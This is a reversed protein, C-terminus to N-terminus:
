EDLQELYHRAADTFNGQSDFEIVKEFHERAELSRGLLLLAKGYLLHARADDPEIRLSENLQEMANGYEQLTLYAEGLDNRARLDDPNYTLYRDLENISSVLDGVAMYAEGLALSTFDPDFELALPLYKVTDAYKGQLNLAEGWLGFLSSFTGCSYLTPVYMDKVFALNIEEYIESAESYRNEGFLVSAELARPLLIAERADTDKFEGSRGGRLRTPGEPPPSPDSDPPFIRVLDGVPFQKWKFLVLDPTTTYMPFHGYNGEVLHEYRTDAPGPQYGPPTRALLDKGKFGPVGAATISTIRVDPRVGEVVQLYMCPFIINDNDVVVVADREATQLINGALDEAYHYDSKDAKDYHILASCLPCALVLLAAVTVTAYEVLRDRSGILRKLARVLSMAGVGVWLSFVLYSPYYFHARLVPELQSYTMVPLLTLLLMFLLFLPYKKSRKGFSCLLGLGGLWAFYPFETTLTGFYRWFRSPLFRAPYGLLGGRLYYASVHRYWGTVTAPDGYNYAPGRFAATPEYLYPLLGLALFLVARTLNRPALAERWDTDVAFFLFAPFTFVITIHNAIALGFCFAFALLTNTAKVKSGRFLLREWRLALVILLAMFFTNLSYMEPIVSQYWFTYSFAYSLAAVIGGLRSHFMRYIIWYLLCATISAFLGSYLSARFALTGVPVLWGFLKATMLYLPYGPGHINGVTAIGMLFDGSDSFTVTRASTLVLLVLTLIFIFALLVADRNATIWGTVDVRAARIFPRKSTEKQMCNIIFELGRFHFCPSM